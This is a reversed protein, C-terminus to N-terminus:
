CNKVTTTIGVDFLKLVYEMSVINLIESCILDMIQKFLTMMKECIPEM